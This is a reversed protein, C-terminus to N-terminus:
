EVKSVKTTTEEKIKNGNSESFKIKIIKFTICEMNRITMARVKFGLVMHNM